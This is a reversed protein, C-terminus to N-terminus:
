IWDRAPMEGAIHIYCEDQTLGNGVTEMFVTLKYWNGKGIAPAATPTNDGQYVYHDGGGGLDLAVSHPWWSATSETDQYYATGNILLKIRRTAGPEGVARRDTAVYLYRHEHRIWYHWEQRYTGPGGFENLTEEEVRTFGSGQTSAYYDLLYKTNASVQNLATATLTVGDSFSPIAQPYNIGFTTSPHELLYIGQVEGAPGNDWMVKYIGNYPIGLPELDVVGSLKGSNCEDVKTGNVFLESNGSYCYWHLYQQRHVLYRPSDEAIELSAYNFAGINQVYEQAMSLKNLEQASLVGRAFIPLEYGLAM